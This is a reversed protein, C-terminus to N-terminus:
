IMGFRQPQLSISNESHGGVCATSDVRNHSQDSVQQRELVRHQGWWRHPQSYQVPTVSAEHVGKRSTVPEGGFCAVRSNMSQQLPNMWMTGRHHRLLCMESLQIAAVTSLWGASLMACLVPSAISLADHRLTMGKHFRCRRGAPVHVFLIQTCKDPTLTISLTPPGPRAAVRTSSMYSAAALLECSVHCHSIGRLAPPLRTFKGHM